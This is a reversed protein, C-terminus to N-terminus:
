FCFIDKEIEEPNEALWVNIPECGSCSSPGNERLWDAMINAKNEINKEEEIKAKIESIRHSVNNCPVLINKSPIYFRVKDVLGCKKNSTYIKNNKIFEEFEKENRGAWEKSYGLLKIHKLEKVLDQFEKYSKRYEELKDVDWCSIDSKLPIISWQDIKLEELLKAMDSLDFINKDSAVTNVRIIVKNSYKRIKKIADIVKGYLGPVGRIQNHIEEKNSDLSIIIQNLGSDILKKYLTGLLMGNTIISTKIDEENCKRIFYELNKHLLTEGGTFRILRYNSRKAIELIREFEEITIEKEKNNFGFDCMICNANCNETVRIFMIEPKNKYM